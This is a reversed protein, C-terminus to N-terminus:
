EPEAGSANILAANMAEAENVTDEFGDLMETFVIAMEDYVEVILLAELDERQIELGRISALARGVLADRRDDIADFDALREGLKAAALKQNKTGERYKDVREQIDVKATQISEHYESGAKFTDVMNQMDSIMKETIETANDRIYELEQIRPRSEEIVINSAEISDQLARVREQLSSLTDKNIVQANATLSTLMMALFVAAAKISYTRM